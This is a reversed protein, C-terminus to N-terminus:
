LKGVLFSPRLRKLIRYPQQIAGFGKYFRAIGEIMSGEFDFFSAKTSYISLLTDVLLFMASYKKGAETSVPFLYTIRNRFNGYALASHIEGEKSKIGCCAIHGKEFGTHILKSILDINISKDAHEVKKYVSLFGDPDLETFTYHRKGAKQINRITNKSYAAQIETYAPQLPIVYNTKLQAEPHHNLYNLNIEYSYSPLRSLFEQLLSESLEDRGFLGLQQTLAPQVIYPLKYKRKVPVPFVFRYDDSVLADWDPAVCDLFWSCAYILGNEADLISRDWKEKDISSHILYDVQMCRSTNYDLLLVNFCKLKM